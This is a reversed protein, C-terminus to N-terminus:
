RFIKRFNLNGREEFHKASPVLNKPTELTPPDLSLGNVGGNTLLHSGGWAAEVDRM